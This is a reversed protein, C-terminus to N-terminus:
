PGSVSAALRDAELAQRVSVAQGAGIGLAEMIQKQTINTTMWTDNFPGAKCFAVREQTLEEASKRVSGTVATRPETRPATRPSGASQGTERLLEEAAARDEAAASREANASRRDAAAAERIRSAEALKTRSRDALLEAEHMRRNIESDASRTHAAIRDALERDASQRDRDARDAADQESQRIAAAAALEEGAKERVAALERVATARDAAAASRDAETAVTRRDEVERVQENAAQRIAVFQRVLHPGVHAWAILLAPTIAEFVARGYLRGAVDPDVAAYGLILSPAVNAGLMATGAGVLLRNAPRLQQPTAGATALYQVVIILGVVTIDVAPSTLPQIWGPLGLWMSLWRVNGFSFLFSMVGAIMTTTVLVGFAAGYGKPLGYSGRVAAPQGDPTRDASKPGNDVSGQTTTRPSGPGDPGTRPGSDASQPGRVPPSASQARDVSQPGRVVPGTRRVTASLTDDTRPGDMRDALTDSESRRDAPGHPSTMRVMM